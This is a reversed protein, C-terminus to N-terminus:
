DEVRRCSEDVTQVTMIVYSIRQDAKVPKTNSLPDSEFNRDESVLDDV